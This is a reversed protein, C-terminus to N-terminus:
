HYQEDRVEQAVFVPIVTKDAFIVGQRVFLTAQNKERLMAAPPTSTTRATGTCPTAYFYARRLELEGPQLLLREDQQGHSHITHFESTNMINVEM